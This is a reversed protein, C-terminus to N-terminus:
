TCGELFREDAGDEVAPRGDGITHTRARRRLQDACDQQRPQPVLDDGEGHVAGGEVFQHIFQGGAPKLDRPQPRRDM